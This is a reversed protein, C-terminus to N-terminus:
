PIHMIKEVINIGDTTKGNEALKGKINDKQTM